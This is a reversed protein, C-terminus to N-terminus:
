DRKNAVSWNTLCTDAHDIAEGKELGIGAPRPDTTIARVAGTRCEALLIVPVPFHNM